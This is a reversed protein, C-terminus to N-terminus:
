SRKKAALALLGLTIAGGGLWFLLFSPVASFSIVDPEAPTWSSLFYVITLLMAVVTYRAVSNPQNVQSDSSISHENSQSSLVETAPKM